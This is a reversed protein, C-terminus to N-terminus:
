RSTNRWGINTRKAGIPKKWYPPMTATCVSQAPGQITRTVPSSGAAAAVPEAPLTFYSVPPSTGCASLLLAAAALARASRLLSM